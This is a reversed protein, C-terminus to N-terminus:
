QCRKRNSPRQVHETMPGDETTQTNFCEVDKELMANWLMWNASHQTEQEAVAQGLWAAVMRTGMENKLWTTIAQNTTRQLSTNKSEKSQAQAVDTNQGMLMSRQEQHWKVSWKLPMQNGNMQTLM